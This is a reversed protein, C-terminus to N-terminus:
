DTLLKVLAEHCEVVRRKVVDEDPRDHVLEWTADAVARATARSAERCLRDVLELEFAEVQAVPDGPPLRPLPDDLLERWTRSALRLRDHLDPTGM